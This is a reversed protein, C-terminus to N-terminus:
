TEVYATDLTHLIPHILACVGNGAMKKKFLYLIYGFFHCKFTKTWKKEKNKGWTKSYPERETFFGTILHSNMFYQNWFPATQIEIKIWESTVHM